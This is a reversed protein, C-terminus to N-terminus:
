QNGQTFDGWKGVELHECSEDRPTNRIVVNKNDHFMPDVGFIFIPMKVHFDLDYFTNAVVFSLICTSSQLDVKNKSTLCLQIIVNGKKALLNFKCIIVKIPAHM